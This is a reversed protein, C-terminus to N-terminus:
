SCHRFWCSACETRNDHATSAWDGRAIGRSYPGRDPTFLRIVSPSHKRLRRCIPLTLHFCVEGPIRATVIVSTGRFGPCRATHHASEPPRGEDRLFLKDKLACPIAARCLGQGRVCKHAVIPFLYGHDNEAIARPPACTQALTKMAKVTRLSAGRQSNQSNKSLVPTRCFSPWRMLSNKREKRFFCCPFRM